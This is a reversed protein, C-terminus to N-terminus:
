LPAVSLTGVRLRCCELVADLLTCMYMMQDYRCLADCVTNSM